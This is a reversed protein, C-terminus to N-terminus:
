KAQRRRRRRWGCYKIGLKVAAHYVRKARKKAEDSINTKKNMVLFSRQLVARIGDCDQSTTNKKCVPYNLTKPYLFCHSLPLGRRMLMGKIKERDKKSHPKKESWFKKKKNKTKGKSTGFDLPIWGTNRVKKKNDM